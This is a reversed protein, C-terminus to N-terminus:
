STRRKILIGNAHIKNGDMENDKPKEGKSFNKRRSEVNIWKREIPVLWEEQKRRAGSRGETEEGVELLEKHM